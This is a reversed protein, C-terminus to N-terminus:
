HKGYVEVDVTIPNNNFENSNIADNISHINPNTFNQQFTHDTDITIEQNDTTEELPEYDGHKLSSGRSELIRRNKFEKESKNRLQFSVKNLAKLMNDPM